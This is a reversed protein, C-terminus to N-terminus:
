LASLLFCLAVFVALARVCFQIREFTDTPHADEGSILWRIKATIRPVRIDVVVVAALIAGTLFRGFRGRLRDYEGMAIGAMRRLNPEFSLYPNGSSIQTDGYLPSNDGSYLFRNGRQYKGEFVTEGRNSITLDRWFDQEEGFTLRYSKQKGGPIQYTVDYTELNTLRNVQITIEGYRDRGHYTIVGKETKKKLFHNNWDMGRSFFANFYFIASLVGVLLLGILLLRRYKRCGRQIKKMLIPLDV